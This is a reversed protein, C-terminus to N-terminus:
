LADDDADELIGTAKEPNPSFIAKIQVIPIGEVNETGARGIGM